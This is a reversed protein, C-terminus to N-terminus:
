AVSGGLILASVFPWPLMSGQASWGGEILEYVNTTLCGAYVFSVVFPMIAIASSWTYTWMSISTLGLAYNLINYPICPNLRLVFVLTAGEKQLATDLLGFHQWRSSICEQISSKLYHRALVFAVTQGLV